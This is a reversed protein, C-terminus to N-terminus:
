PIKAVCLKEYECPTKYNLSSHPYDANYDMVRSDLEAQLEFPAQFDNLWILDKKITRIVRETDANGKPNDYSTNQRLNNSPSDHQASPSVDPGRL